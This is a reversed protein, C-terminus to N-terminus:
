EGLEFGYYGQASPFLFTNECTCFVRFIISFHLIKEMHYSYQIYQKMLPQEGNGLMRGKKRGNRLRFIKDLSVGLEKIYGQALTLHLDQEKDTIFNCGSFM